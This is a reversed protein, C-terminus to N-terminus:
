QNNTRNTWATTLREPIANQFAQVWSSKREMRGHPGGGSGYDSDISGMSSNSTMGVSSPAKRITPKPLETPEPLGEVRAKLVDKYLQAAPSDYKEKIPTRAEIGYKQLFANSKDNGGKKMRAIQEKSWSDLDISRVFSIHTGLSSYQIVTSRVYNLSSNRYSHVLLRAILVDYLIYSSPGKTEEIATIVCNLIKTSYGIRESGYRSACCCCKSRYSVFNSVSSSWQV